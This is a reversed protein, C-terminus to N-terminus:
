ASGQIKPVALNMRGVLCCSADSGFTGMAAPTAYGSLRSALQSEFHGFGSKRGGWGAAGTLWILSSPTVGARDLVWPIPCTPTQRPIPIAPRITGVVTTDTCSHSSSRLDPIFLDGPDADCLNSDQREPVARDIQPSGESPALLVQVILSEHEVRGSDGGVLKTQAGYGCM